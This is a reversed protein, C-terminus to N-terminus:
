LSWSISSWFARALPRLWSISSWFHRPNSHGALPCLKTSIELLLNLHQYTLCHSYPSTSFFVHNCFMGEMNQSSYSPSLCFTSHVLVFRVLRKSYTTLTTSSPTKTVFLKLNQHESSMTVDKLGVTFDAYILVETKLKPRCVLYLWHRGLFFTSHLYRGWQDITDHILFLFLFLFCVSSPTPHPPTPHLPQLLPPVSIIGQGKQLKQVLHIEHSKNTTEHNAQLKMHNTLLKMHNTQLKMHNTNEYSKNTTEHNTLLKMHNTHLKMHNTLLKMHNTLLKMHNTQLKMHNTLLKMHNTTEYSKNTTEYSESITEYKNTTEYSKSTTEYSKTQLKMHNRLQKM